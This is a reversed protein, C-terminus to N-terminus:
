FSLGKLTLTLLLGTLNHDRGARLPYAGICRKFIKALLAAKFLKDYSVITKYYSYNRTLRNLFFFFM